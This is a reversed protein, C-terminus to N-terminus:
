TDEVRHVAGRYGIGYIRNCHVFNYKMPGRGGAELARLLAWTGGVTDDDEEAIGALELPKLSPHRTLYSPM